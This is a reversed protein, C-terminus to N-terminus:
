RYDYRGGQYDSCTNGIATWLAHREHVRGKFNRYLVCFHQVGWQHEPETAWGFVTQPHLAEHFKDAVDQVVYPDGLIGANFDPEESDIYRSPHCSNLGIAPFVPDWGYNGDKRFYHEEVGQFLENHIGEYMINQYRYMPAGTEWAWNFGPEGGGGMNRQVYAIIPFQWASKNQQAAWINYHNMTHSVVYVWNWEPQYQNIGRENYLAVAVKDHNMAFHGIRHAIITWAEKIKGPRTYVPSNARDYQDDIRYFYEPNANEPNNWGLKAWLCGYADHSHFHKSQRNPDGLEIMFWLGRQNCYSWMDHLREMVAENFDNWEIADDEDVEDDTFYAIAGSHGLDPFEDPPLDGHLDPTVRLGVNIWDIHPAYTEGANDRVMQKWQSEGFAFGWRDYVGRFKPFPVNGFCYDDVWVPETIGSLRPVAHVNQVQLLSPTLPGGSGNGKGSGSGGICHPCEHSYVHGVVQASLSITSCLVGSVALFLVLLYTKRSAASM